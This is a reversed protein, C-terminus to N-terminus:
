FTRPRIRPHHYSHHGDGHKRNSGLSGGLSKFVSYTIGFPLSTKFITRLAGHLFFSVGETRIASCFVAAGEEFIQKECRLYAHFDRVGGPRDRQFMGSRLVNRLPTTVFTLGAHTRFADFFNGGFSSSSYESRRLSALAAGHWCIAILSAASSGCFLSLLGFQSRSFKLCDIISSFSRKELASYNNRTGNMREAIIRIATKANGFLTSGLVVGCLGGNCLSFGGYLLGWPLALFFLQQYNTLLGRYRWKSFEIINIKNFTEANVVKVFDRYPYLIFITCLASFYALFGQWLWDM